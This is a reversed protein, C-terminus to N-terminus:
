SGRSIMLLVGGLWVLIWIKALLPLATIKRSRGFFVITVYMMACGRIYGHLADAVRRKQDEPSM